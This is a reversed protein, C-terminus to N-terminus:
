EAALQRGLDRARVLIGTHQDPPRSESAPLVIRGIVDVDCRDKVLGGLWDVVSDYEHPDGAGYTVVLVGRYGKPFMREGLDTYNYAHFRDILAKLQATVHDLYIPTGFIVGRPGEGTELASYIQTMDDRVACRATKRCAECAICPGVKMRGLQFHTTVAGAEAAGTLVESIIRGTYGGPRPSGNIGIVSM